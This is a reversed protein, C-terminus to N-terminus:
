QAMAVGTVVLAAGLGLWVTVQEGLTLAGIVIAVVPV